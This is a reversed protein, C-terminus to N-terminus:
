VFHIISIKPESPVDTLKVPNKQVTIRIQTGNSIQLLVVPTPM